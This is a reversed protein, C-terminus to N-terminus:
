VPHRLSQLESTHEESRREGVDITRLTVEPPLALEERKAWGSRQFDSVLVIDKRPLNSGGAIDGAMKIAPAYRTAEATLKATKLSRFLTTYPFHDQSTAA